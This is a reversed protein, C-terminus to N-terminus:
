FHARCCCIHLLRIMILYLTRTTCLGFPSVLQQETVWLKHVVLSYINSFGVLGQFLRLFDEHRGVM